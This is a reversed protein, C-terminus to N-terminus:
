QSIDVITRMKNKSRRIRSKSTEEVVVTTTGTTLSLTCDSKTKKQKMAEGM